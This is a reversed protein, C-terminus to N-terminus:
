PFTRNVSRDFDICDVEIEAGNRPTSSKLINEITKRLHKRLVDKSFQTHKVSYFYLNELVSKLLDSKGSM